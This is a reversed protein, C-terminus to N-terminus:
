PRDTLSPPPTFSSAPVGDRLARDRTYLVDVAQRWAQEARQRRDDMMDTMGAMAALDGGTAASRIMEAPDYSVPEPMAARAQAAAGAQQTVAGGVAAATDAAHTSWASARSLAARLAEGGAGQWSDESSGHTATLAECAARLRQGLATWGRGIEGASEPDNGAGVEAKLQEHTYAEYRRNTEPATM